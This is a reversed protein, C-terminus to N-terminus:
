CALYSRFLKSRWLMDPREAPTSDPGTTHSGALVAGHTRHKGNGQPLPLIAASQNATPASAWKQKRCQWRTSPRCLCGAPSHVGLYSKFLIHSSSWIQWTLKIRSRLYTAENFRHDTITRCTGQVWGAHTYVALSPQYDVEARFSSESAQKHKCMWTCYNM